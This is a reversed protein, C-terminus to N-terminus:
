RETRQSRAKKFAEDTSFEALEDRNREADSQAATIQIMVDKMFEWSM